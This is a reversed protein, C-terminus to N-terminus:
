DMAGATGFHTRIRRVYEGFPPTTMMDLTRERPLDIDLV